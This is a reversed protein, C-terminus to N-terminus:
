FSFCSQPNYGQLRSLLEWMAPSSRALGKGSPSNVSASSRPVDCTEKDYRDAAPAPWALRGVGALLMMIHLVRQQLQILRLRFRAEGRELLATM